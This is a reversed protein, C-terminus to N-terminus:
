RPGSKENAANPNAEEVVTPTGIDVHGEREIRKAVTVAEPTERGLLAGTNVILPQLVEDMTVGQAEVTMRTQWLARKQKREVGAFDFATATVFCCSHFALEVVNRMADSDGFHL